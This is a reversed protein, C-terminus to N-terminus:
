NSKLSLWTNLGKGYTHTQAPLNAREATGGFRGSVAVVVSIRGFWYTKGASGPWLNVKRSQNGPPNPWQKQTQERDPIRLFGRYTCNRTAGETHLMYPVLSTETDQSNKLRSNINNM